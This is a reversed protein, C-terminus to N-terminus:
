EMNDMNKQQKNDSFWLAVLICCVIQPIFSKTCSYCYGTKQYLGINKNASQLEDELSSEDSESGNYMIVPDDEKKKKRLEEEQKIVKDIVQTIPSDEVNVINFCTLNSKFAMTM